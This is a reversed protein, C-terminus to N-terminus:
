NSNEKYACFSNKASQFHEQILVYSSEFTIFVLILHFIFLPPTCIAVNAKKPPPDLQGEGWIETLKLKVKIESM